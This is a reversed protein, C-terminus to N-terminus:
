GNVYHLMGSSESDEAVSTHSGSMECAKFTMIPLHGSVCISVM